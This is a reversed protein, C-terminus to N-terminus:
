PPFYGMAKQLLQRAATAGISRSPKPRGFARCAAEHGGDPFPARWRVMEGESEGGSPEPECGITALVRGRSASGVVEALETAGPAAVLLVRSLGLRDMWECLVQAHWAITHAQERKPKDSRGHGILDPLLLRISGESGGHADIAAAALQEFWLGWAGWAHLAVVNLSARDPGIDRWCLRLGALSPLDAM